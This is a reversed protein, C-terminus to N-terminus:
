CPLVASSMTAIIGQGVYRGKEPSTVFEEQESELLVVSSVTMQNM